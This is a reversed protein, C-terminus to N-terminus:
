NMKAGGFLVGLLPEEKVVLTETREVLCDLFWTSTAKNVVFNSENRDV